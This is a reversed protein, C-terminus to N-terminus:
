FPLQQGRSVGIAASKLWDAVKQGLGVKQQTSTLGVKVRLLFKKTVKAFKPKGNVPHAVERALLLDDPFADKQAAKVMITEAHDLEETTPHRSPGSDVEQMTSEQRPDGHGTEEAPKGFKRNASAAKFEKIKVLLKALARRLSVFTSFRNFRESGLGQATHVGTVRAIVPKRVEPDEEDLVAEPAVFDTSPQPDKLFEPGNLWM